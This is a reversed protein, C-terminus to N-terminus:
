SCATLISLEPTVCAGCTLAQEQHQHQAAGPLGREGQGRGAAPGQTAQASGVGARKRGHAARALAILQRAARRDGHSRLRPEQDRLAKGAHHPAHRM